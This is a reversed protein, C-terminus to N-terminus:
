VSVRLAEEAQICKEEEHRLQDRVANNIISVQALEDQTVDGQKETKELERVMRELNKEDAKKQKTSCLHLYM